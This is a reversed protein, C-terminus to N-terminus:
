PVGPAGDAAAVTAPSHYLPVVHMQAGATTAALVASLHSDPVRLELEVAASGVMREHNVRRVVIAEPVIIEPEAHQGHQEAPQAAWLEVAVGTEVGSPPSGAISVVVAAQETDAAGLASLPIMEGAGVARTIVAPEAPLADPSLYHANTADARVEVLSIRAETLDDGPALAETAIYVNTTRYWASIVLVVGAVSAVVLLVGVILRSDIRLRRAPATTTM